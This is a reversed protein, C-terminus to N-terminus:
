MFTPVFDRSNCILHQQIELFMRGACSKITIILRLKYPTHNKEEPVLCNFICNPYEFVPKLQEAGHEM